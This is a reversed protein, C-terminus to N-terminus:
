YKCPGGKAKSFTCWRCHNGPTAKFKTDTLMPKARTTWRKVLKTLSREGEGYMEVSNASPGIDTYWFEVIVATAELLKLAFLAYLEAQLAHKEPYAKGTKYDIIRPAKKTALVDMKARCWADKDFWGTQAEFGETLALEEECLPKEKKLARLELAHSSLEAPLTKAWGRVFAEAAKHVAEGREAAPGRPEPLRDIFKFKAKAPCTQYTDWRSFSWATIKKAV